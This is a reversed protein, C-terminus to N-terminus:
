AWKLWQSYTFHSVYWSTQQCSDALHAQHDQQIGQVTNQVLTLGINIDSMQCRRM